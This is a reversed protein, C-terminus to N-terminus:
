LGARREMHSRSQVAVSCVEIRTSSEPESQPTMVPRETQVQSPDPSERRHGHSLRLSPAQPQTGRSVTVAM